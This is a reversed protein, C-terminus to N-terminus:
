IINKHCPLSEKICFTFIKVKYLVKNWFTIFIKGYNILNFSICPFSYPVIVAYYKTSGNSSRAIRKIVPSMNKVLRVLNFSSAIEEVNLSFWSNYKRLKKGNAIVRM